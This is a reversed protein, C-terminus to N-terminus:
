DSPSPSRLARKRKVDPASYLCKKITILLTCMRACVYICLRACESVGGFSCMYKGHANGRDYFEQLLSVAEDRRLGQYIEIGKYSGIPQNLPLISGCGGFRDNLCGFIVRTVGSIGSNDGAPVLPCEGLNLLAAACMICPECTM